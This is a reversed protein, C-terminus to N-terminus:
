GEVMLIREIIRTQGSREPWIRAGLRALKAKRALERTLGVLFKSV